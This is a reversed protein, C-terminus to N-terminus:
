EIVCNGHDYKRRQEPHHTQGCCYRYTSQRRELTGFSLVFLVERLSQFEIALLPLPFPVWPQSNDRLSYQSRAPSNMTLEALTGHEPTGCRLFRATTRINYSDAM